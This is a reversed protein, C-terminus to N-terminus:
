AGRRVARGMAYGIAVGALSCAAGTGVGALVVWFPVRNDDRAVPRAPVGAPAPAAPTPVAAAQEAGEPTPAVAAQPAGAEAPEPAAGVRAIDSDIAAFFQGAMRKSVGGLMRQGVGGIPGGVVADADYEIDTGGEGAALRVRVKAEITGPAGAGKATLLFSEHRQQESLSVEGEYTGKISAVGATVALAYADQGIPTLRKVGPITRELVGQDHFADWAVEVPAKMHASGTIKM